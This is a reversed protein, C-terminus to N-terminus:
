RNVRKEMWAIRRAVGFANADKVKRLYVLAKKLDGSQQYVDAIQSNAWDKQRPNNTRKLFIDYGRAMNDWEGNRRFIGECQELINEASFPSQRNAVDVVDLHPLVYGECIRAAVMGDQAFNMADRSADLAVAIGARQHEFNKSEILRRAVFLEQGVMKYMQPYSEATQMKQDIGRTFERRAKNLSVIASGDEAATEDMWKRQFEWLDAAIPELAQQKSQLDSQLASNTTSALQTEAKLAATKAEFYEDRLTEFDKSTRSGVQESKDRPVAKSMEAKSPFPFEIQFNKTEAKKSLYSDLRSRVLWPRPPHTIRYWTGAIVGSVLLVGIIWGLTRRSPRLKKWDVSTLDVNLNM